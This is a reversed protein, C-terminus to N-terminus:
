GRHEKGEPAVKAGDVWCTLLYEQARPMFYYVLCVIIRGERLERPIHAHTHTHTEHTHTHTHCPSYHGGESGGM